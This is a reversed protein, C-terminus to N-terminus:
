STTWRRQSRTAARPRPLARPRDRPRRAGDNWGAAAEPGIARPLWRGLQGHAQPREGAPRADRAIAWEQRPRGRPRRVTRRDVLGAGALKRLQTRVTNPHRAVRQALEATTAPRRLETLAPFLRARVTDALVDADPTPPIEM